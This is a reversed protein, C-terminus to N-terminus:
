NKKISNIFLGIIWIIFIATGIPILFEISVLGFGIAATDKELVKIWFLFYAILPPIIGLGLFFLAVKLILKLSYKKDNSVANPLVHGESDFSDLAFLIKDHIINLRRTVESNDITGRLRQSNLENHEGLLIHIANHINKNPQSMELLLSLADSTQGESVLHKIKAKITSESQTLSM